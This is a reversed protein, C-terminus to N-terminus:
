WPAQLLTQALLGKKYERRARERGSPLDLLVLRDQPGHWHVLAQLGKLDFQLGLPRYGPQHWHATAQLGPDLQLLADGRAAWLSGAGHWLAQTELAQQHLLRADDFDLVQLTDPHRLALASRDHWQCPLAQLPAAAPRRQIARRVDLNLLQLQGETDWALVHFHDPSPHLQRLPAPLTIRRRGLHGRTPVGEGFRFDHVLGEYFDEAAPDLYIEWLEALAAPAAVLSRRAAVAGLVSTPGAPRGEKTTTPYRRVPQLTPAQLLQLDDATAALLWQGDASLRLGHLPSGLALREPTQATRLSVRELTGDAQGLYLSHADAASLAQPPLMLQHRLELEDGQLWLLRDHAAWVWSPPNAHALFPLGLATCALGGHLLGRRQLAM